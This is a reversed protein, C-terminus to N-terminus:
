AHKASRRELLMVLVVTLAIFASQTVVVLVLDTQAALSAFPLYMLALALGGVAFGFHKNLAILGIASAALVVELSAEAAFALMLARDVAIEGRTWWEVFSPGILVLATGGFLVVGAVAGWVVRRQRHLTARDRTAMARTMVPVSAITFIQGVQKLMNALTRLTSFQAVAAPGLVAGVLLTSGQLYVFNTAPQALSGLMPAILSRHMSWGRFSPVRSAWTVVNSCYAGLIATGVVRGVLLAVVFGLVTGSTTLIVAAVGFEVVRLAAISTWTAGQRGDARLIGEVANTQLCTLAYLGYAVFVIPAWSPLGSALLHLVVATGVLALVAVVGIAALTGSALRALRRAQGYDERSAAQLMATSFAPLLGFDSMVLVSPVAIVILYQGYTEPGVAGLFVPVQFLQIITTSIVGASQGVVGGFFQRRSM